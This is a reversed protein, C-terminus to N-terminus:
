ALPDSRSLNGQSRTRVGEVFYIMDIVKARTYRRATPLGTAFDLTPVRYREVVDANEEYVAGVKKLAKKGFAGVGLGARFFADFAPVSGFVGLMIKTTLIDGPYGPPGWNRRLTEQFGLLAGIRDDAYDDADVQWLIPDATVIAQIVPELFRVSKTLLLAAGRFMGWSALFFGLQLCSLQLQAPEALERIRGEERFSQFYNFCYDFSTYREEPRRGGSGADGFLYERANADPDM